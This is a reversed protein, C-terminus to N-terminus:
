SRHRPHSIRLTQGRGGIQSATPIWQILGTSYNIQMGSPKKTLSYILTDGDADSANVDYRYIANALASKNPPTTIRPATNAAQSSVTFTFEQNTTAQGDSVSATFTYTGLTAPTWQLVGSTSVTLGTPAGSLSFTLSDVDPDTALLDRVFDQGIQLTATSAAGILPPHTWTPNRSLVSPWPSRLESYLRLRKSQTAPSM